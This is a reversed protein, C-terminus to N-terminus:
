GGPDLSAAVSTIHQRLAAKDTDDLWSAEVGLLAIQVMRDWGWGFARAVAAYEAGLDRDIFAPDDTNVTALLGAELMKPYVHDKLRAFSNSILVNSTPCVTIPIREAVMRRTLAVDDLVPIGHDIREAGLESIAADIASAPSNEGQHATLRFGAARALDYAPRFSLPDVGLETSDMGVGIVRDIGPTGAKRLRVLAEVFELGAAPGFARDMDGILVYRAATEAEGARLGEDLGAVIEALDQGAALHRAPTFFSERYVVGHAAGDVVSEYAIRAWDDRSSLTSQGLWFVDLFGDLSDYRYLQDLDETPLAIGNRHALETLTAPRLTGEIHCHLEVKPLADLGSALLVHESAM